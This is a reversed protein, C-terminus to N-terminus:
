TKEKHESSPPLNEFLRTFEDILYSSTITFLEYEPQITDSHQVRYPLLLMTNDILCFAPPPVGTRHLRAGILKVTARIMKKPDSAKITVSVDRKTAQKLLEIVAPHDMWSCDRGAIAIREKASQLKKMGIAFAVRHPKAMWFDEAESGKESRLELGEGVKEVLDSLHTRSEFAPTLATRPDIARYRIEHGRGSRKNESDRPTQIFCGQNALEKLRRGATSPSIHLEDGVMKSNVFIKRLGVGYVDADVKDFIKMSTLLEILERTPDKEADGDM